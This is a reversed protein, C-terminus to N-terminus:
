GSGRRYDEHSVPECKMAGVGEADVEYVALHTMFRDAAAGHWHEEGAKFCTRDGARLVEISGGRRQCWAIGETIYLTQASPHTHWITRAGPAFHVLIVSVRSDASPSVIGDTYVGGTFWEGTGVQTPMDTRTVQM